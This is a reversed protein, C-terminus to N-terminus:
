RNSKSFIKTKPSSKCSFVIVKIWRMRQSHSSPNSRSMFLVNSTWHFVNDDVRRGGSVVLFFM